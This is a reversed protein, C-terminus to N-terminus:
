DGEKTLMLASLRNTVGDGALSRDFNLLNQLLGHLDELEDLISYYDAIDLLVAKVLKNKAVFLPRNQLTDLYRNLHRKLEQVSKIRIAM